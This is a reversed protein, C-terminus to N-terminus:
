LIVKIQSGAVANGGDVGIVYEPRKACCIYEGDYIEVVCQLVKGAGAIFSIEKYESM